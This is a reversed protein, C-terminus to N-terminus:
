LRSVTAWFKDWIIIGSGDEELHTALRLVNDEGVKELIDLIVLVERLSTIQIFGAGEADVTRFARRVQE